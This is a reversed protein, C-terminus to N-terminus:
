LLINTTIRFKLSEVVDDLLQFILLILLHKLLNQFGFGLFPFHRELLLLFSHFVTHSIIVFTCIFNVLSPSNYRFHLTLLQAQIIFQLLKKSFFLSYFKFLHLLFFTNLFITLVILAPSNIILQNFSQIRILFCNIDIFGFQEFNLLLM